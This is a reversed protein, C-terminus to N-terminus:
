ESWGLGLAKQVAVYSNAMQARAQSVTIMAQLRQREVDIQDIVSSTGAAVRQQNLAVSRQASAQAQLLRGYRQRAVAFRALSTEADDLADLVAKRYRAEAEDRGAESQRVVTRAKGFDLANWNLQPAILTTLKSLDFVDGPERGGLGLLGMFRVAPLLKAKDVGIQATSVALAREAARVDPRHAILRAPDGVPVIDPPLPVADTLGLSSDLSGPERGVLVALQDLYDAAAAQLTADEAQDNELQHQLRELDLGSATGAAYRQRTLSVSRQRLTISQGSLRAREQADRLNVYAQAVQAALSVQADALNAFERGVSAKAKELTRGRGFIDPEWSANLGLTYFDLNSSSASSRASGGEDQNAIGVGPLEAHLYVASASAHPLGAARVQRLQAAAARIRAEAIAVSPSQALARDILSTLQSDNLALWWKAAGPTSITASEARAFRPLTAAVSAPPDKYDPGVACGALLAAGGLPFLIRM